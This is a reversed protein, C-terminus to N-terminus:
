NGYQWGERTESDEKRFVEEEKRMANTGVETREVDDEM